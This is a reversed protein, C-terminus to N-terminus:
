DYVHGTRTSRYNKRCMHCRGGGQTFVLGGPHLNVFLKPYYVGGQAYNGAFKPELDGAPFLPVQTVVAVLKGVCGKLGADEKQIHNMNHKLKFQLIIFRSKTKAATRSFSVENKIYSLLTFTLSV